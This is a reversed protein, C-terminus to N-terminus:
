IVQSTVNNVYFSKFDFFHFIEFIEEAWFQFKACNNCNDCLEMIRGSHCKWPLVIPELGEENLLFVWLKGGEFLTIQEHQENLQHSCIHVDCLLLVLFDM